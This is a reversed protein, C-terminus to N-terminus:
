RKQGIQKIIPWIEQHRRPGSHSVPARSKLHSAMLWGEALDRALDRSFGLALSIATRHVDPGDSSSTRPRFTWNNGGADQLPGYDTVIARLSKDAYPNMIQGHDIATMTVCVVIKLIFKPNFGFRKWM